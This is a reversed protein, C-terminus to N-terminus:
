QKPKKKIGSGKKRNKRFNSKTKQGRLPLGITHRLGKYCKIKKLRKIDFEKQLELDSGTLHKNEGTEYDDRRNLLHEPLEPNKLFTIIKTLDDETLSGIKRKKDMGLIRCIANSLTWSIGKIKTLGSYLTMRGEIDKSLIRVVREDMEKDTQIKQEM